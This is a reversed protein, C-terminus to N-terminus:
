FRMCKTVGRDRGGLVQCVKLEQNKIPILIIWLSIGQSPFNLSGQLIDPFGKSFSELIIFM